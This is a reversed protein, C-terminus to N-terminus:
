AMYNETNINNNRTRPELTNYAAEPPEDAPNNNYRAATIMDNQASIPSQIGQNSNTNIDVLSRDLTVYHDSQKAATYSMTMAM